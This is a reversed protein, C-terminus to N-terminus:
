GCINFNNLILINFINLTLGYMAKYHKFVSRNTQGFFQTDQRYCYCDSVEKSLSWLIHFWLFSGASSHTPGVQIGRSSQLSLPLRPARQNQMSPLGLALSGGPQSRYLPQPLKSEHVFSQDKVYM